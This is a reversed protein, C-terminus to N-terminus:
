SYIITNVLNFHKKHQQKLNRVERRINNPYIWTIYLDEGDLYGVGIAFVNIIGTSYNLLTEVRKSFFYGDAKYKTNLTIGDHQLRLQTIQLQQEECFTKLRLWASQNDYYGNDFITLGCSLSAVWKSSEASHNIFTALHYEAAINAWEYIEQITAM